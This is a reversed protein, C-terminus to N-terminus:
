ATTPTYFSNPKQKNSSSSQVPRTFQPPPIDQAATLEAGAQSVGDRPATATRSPVEQNPTVQSPMEARSAATQSSSSAHSARVAQQFVSGQFTAAESKGALSAGLIPRQYNTTLPTSVAAQLSDREPSDKTGLTPRQYNRHSSGGPALTNIAKTFPFRGNGSTYEASSSGGLAFISTNLQEGRPLGSNSTSPASPASPASFSPNTVPLSGCGSASVACKM